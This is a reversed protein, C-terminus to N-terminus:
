RLLTNECMCIVLVNVLPDSAIVSSLCALILGCIWYRLCYLEEVLYPLTLYPYIKIM